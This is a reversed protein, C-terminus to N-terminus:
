KGAVPQELFNGPRTPWVGTREDNPCQGYTFGIRRIDSAPAFHFSLSFPIM